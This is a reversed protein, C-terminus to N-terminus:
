TGDSGDEKVATMAVTSHALAVLRVSAGCSQCIEIDGHLDHAIKAPVDGPYYRSMDCEAAKSQAEILEGCHPCTFWVSDFCGM